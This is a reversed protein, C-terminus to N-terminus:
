GESTSAISASRNPLKIHYDVDTETRYLFSERRHTPGSHLGSPVTLSNNSTSLKGVKKNILRKSSTHFNNHRNRACDPDQEFNIVNIEISNQKNTDPFNERKFKTLSSRLNGFKIKTPQTEESKSKISESSNM